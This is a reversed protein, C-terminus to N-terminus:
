RTDRSRPQPVPGLRRRERAGAVAPELRRRLYRELADRWTPMQVGAHALKANSLACFLPRQARLTVDAMRVPILRGTRGLQHAAETVVEHWTAMGSNVCHYLGHPAGRELLRATAGAVDDVYSPSVTRDVFVRVERDELLADVIHDLSSGRRIGEPSLHAGGGFLSEVRLVYHRSASTAFWEGLLKSTAYISQPNPLQEERYPTTASGDFVFDTGYHVLVANIEAAALALSRVAFTNVALAEFAADEAGDVNNYAACNIIVAPCLNRVMDLVQGHQTVDLEARTWSVVDHDRSLLRAVAFGLQGAAGVVLVTV